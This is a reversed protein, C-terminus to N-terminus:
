SNFLIRECIIKLSFLKTRSLVRSATTYDAGGANQRSGRFISSKASNNCQWQVVPAPLACPVGFVYQMAVASASHRISL